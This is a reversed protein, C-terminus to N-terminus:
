KRRWPSSPSGQGTNWTRPTPRPSSMRSVNVSSANQRRQFHNGLDSEGQNPLREARHTGVPQAPYESSALTGRPNACNSVSRDLNGPGTRSDAPTAPSASVKEQPSSPGPTGPTDYSYPAVPRPGTVAPKKTPSEATSSPSPGPLAWRLDSNKEFKEGGTGLDGSPGGHARQAIRTHGCGSGDVGVFKRQEEGPLGPSGTRLATSTVNHQSDRYCRITGPHADVEGPQGLQGRQLANDSRRQRQELGPSNLLKSSSSTRSVHPRPSSFIKGMSESKCM